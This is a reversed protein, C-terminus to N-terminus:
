RTVFTVSAEVPPNVSVNNSGALLVAFAHSGHMVHDMTLRTEVSHLIHPNCRPIPQLTGVYPADSEDFFYVLHYQDIAGASSAPVLRPGWYDVSLTVSDDPPVEAIMEGARPGSVSLLVDAPRLAALTSSRPQDEACPASSMHALGPLSTTVLALAAAALVLWGAARMHMDLAQAVTGTALDFSLRV